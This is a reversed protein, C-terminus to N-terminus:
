GIPLMPLLQWDGTPPPLARYGAGQLESDSVFPLAPRCTWRGIGSAPYSTGVSAFLTDNIPPGLMLRVTQTDPYDGTILIGVLLTDRILVSQSPGVVERSFYARPSRATWPERSFSALDFNGSLRCTSSRGTASDTATALASFSYAPPLHPETGCGTITAFVLSMYHWRVRMRM